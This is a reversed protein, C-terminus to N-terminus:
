HPQRPTTKRDKRAAHHLVKWYGSVMTSCVIAQVFRFSVTRRDPRDRPLPPVPRLDLAAPPQPPTNTGAVTYGQENNRPQQPASHVQNKFGSELQRHYNSTGLFDRPPIFFYIDPEAMYDVTERGLILPHRIGIEGVSPTTDHSTEAPKHFAPLRRVRYTSPEHPPITKRHRTARQSTTTTRNTVLRHM